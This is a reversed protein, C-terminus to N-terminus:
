NASRAVNPLWAPQTRASTIKGGSLKLFSLYYLASGYLWEVRVTGDALRYPTNAHVPEGFIVPMLVDSDCEQRQARCNEIVLRDKLYKSVKPDAPNAIGGIYANVAALESDSLPSSGPVSPLLGRFHKGDPTSVNGVSLGGYPGGTFAKGDQLSGLQVPAVGVSAQAAFLAFAIAFSM